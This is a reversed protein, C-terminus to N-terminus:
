ILKIPEAITRDAVEVTSTKLPAVAAATAAVALVRITQRDAVVALDVTATLTLLEAL